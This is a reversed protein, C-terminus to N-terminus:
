SRNRNIRKELAAKMKETQSSTEIINDLEKPDADLDYMEWTDSEERYTIKLQNERYYFVAKDTEKARGTKGIAEGFCGKQPYDALPLLSQGQFKDSPDHGFLHLITPPIDVNSVLTECIDTESQNGDHILLPVNVLESFMKGDHSLGGHEAFEDGHDSTLIVVSNDLVGHKELIDFFNKVFEDCEIVHADYLKKLLQVTDDSSIDRPLIVDEFLKFMEQESQTISSDVMDVYKRPPVYPEHIDMYHAWLFFPKEKSLRSAFWNDVKGNIADGKVYPVEDTVEAEMGDYFTDWGRNWGFFDCMYANSHFAATSIGKRQLVESILTRETSLIKGKGHDPQDLYYSSTLIGPFSAQTYPGVAQTNTFRICKDQISDIFPSLGSDNGYCGLVDKRLTDITLLIVNKMMEKTKPDTVIATSASIRLM